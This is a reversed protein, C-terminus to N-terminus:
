HRSWKGFAKYCFNPDSIIDPINKFLM